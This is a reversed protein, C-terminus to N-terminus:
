PGAPRTPTTPHTAERLHGVPRDAAPRRRAPRPAVLGFRHGPFNAALAILRDEFASRVAAASPAEPLQATRLFGAAQLEGALKRYDLVSDSFKGNWGPMPTGDDVVPVVMAEIADFVQVSRPGGSAIQNVFRMMPPSRRAIIGVHQEPRAVLAYLHIASGESFVIQQASNYLSIQDELTLKEPHIVMYGDASFVEDLWHEMLVRAHRNELGARSVFLRLGPPRTPISPHAALRAAFRRFRPHGAVQRGSTLAMLQTPVILREVTADGYMLRVPCDIGLLNLIRDAIPSVTRADASPEPANRAQTHWQFVIGAIDGADDLAWLRGLSETLFHGFHPALRGGYLWSGPLHQTPVDLDVQPRPINRLPEKLHCGAEIINGDADYVGGDVVPRVLSAPLTPYEPTAPDGRRIVLRQPVLRAGDVVTVGESYQWDAPRAYLRQALEVNVAYAPSRM